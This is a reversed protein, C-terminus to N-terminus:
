SMQEIHIFVEIEVWSASELKSGIEAKVEEHLRCAAYMAALCVMMSKTPIGGLEATLYRLALRGEDLTFQSRATVVKGYTEPTM